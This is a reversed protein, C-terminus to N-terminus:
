TKLKKYIFCPLVTIPWLFIIIVSLHKANKVSRFDENNSIKETVYTIYVVGLLYIIFTIYFGGMTSAM